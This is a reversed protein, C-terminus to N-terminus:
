LKEFYDTILNPICSRIVNIHLVLNILKKWSTEHYKLVFQM